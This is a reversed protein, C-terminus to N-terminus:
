KLLSLKNINKYNFRECFKIYNTHAIRNLEEPTKHSLKNFLYEIDEVKCFFVIDKLLKDDETNCHESIIICRHSLLKCIRAFPLVNIVDQKLINLYIGPKDIIFNNFEDNSWLDYKQVFYSKNKFLYNKKQSRSALDGIFYLKMDVEKKNYDVLFKTEERMIPIFRIIQFPNSKEYIKFLLKSYVWIEDCYQTTSKDIITPETWYLITYLKHKKFIEFNPIEVCGIFIIIDNITFDSLNWKDYLLNCNYDKLLRFISHIFPKFIFKHFTDSKGQLIYIKVGDPINLM